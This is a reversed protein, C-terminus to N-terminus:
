ALVRDIFRHVKLAEAGSIRPERNQELCDLFDQLVGRHWDHPFAMPDAGTGGGGAPTSFEFPEQGQVSIKLSTGELLATGKTGILEIREPFGPYATTTAHVVGLAGSKFRVAAVALDETEMRHVPTTTVFSKVDAAEGTYSLFLDLTHIGQTLLVGGGDRARTGRGPQDYYSQPRWNPVHASAAVLPGLDDLRETLKEAAPRFRHQLVVGLKLHPMKKVLQEARATSIELPKELLVHKGAAACRSVIELHTNPPTLVLVADVSRDELITELRDCQPFPFREAFQSRREKSPSYAYAVQARAKLDLLSKAHPTVAMGLGVIAVRKM